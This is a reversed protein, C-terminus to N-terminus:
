FVNGGIYFLYRKLFFNGIAGLHEHNPLNVHPPVIKGHAFECFKHALPANNYLHRTNGFPYM